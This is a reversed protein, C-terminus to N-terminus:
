LQLFSVMGSFVEAQVSDLGKSYVHDILTNNETTSCTVHQKYENEAMLNNVRSSQKFLNENFDGMVICKTSMKHLEELHKRLNECFQNIDYSPPRYIVSVAVSIPSTILFSVAEIDNNCINLRSSSTNKAYVAVGGHAQHKIKSSLDNTNSYSDYRAQHYLKYPEIRVDFFDDDKKLWTETLCIINSNMFLDNCYAQGHTFTDKLCVVAKDMTMGQVKHVTCAYALKLPFQKRSYKKGMSEKFMEIAQIGIDNNDFKVKISVPETNHDPKVIEDVHGMCGNTLGKKVDVNKILMVRANIAIWLYNLLSTQRSNRPKDCNKSQKKSNVVSDEAKICVIDTCTKHLMKKNWEDVQKNRPYIHVADECEEGTERSKLVLLDNDSLCDHKEKTRLKNLLLAFQKDEKQRMIQDLQVQKFNDIWLSSELTDKYLSSGMVPPLQYFDGVSIVSINGFPSDNRVQKIQRLRGHIYWLLRQNVMSIEDIIVIQLQGLKNRLASIKEEGLPQYPLSINIPISLASHITQGKINYAAIGTPALKLISLDDPNEMIKGLIRTAENYICNVLHSKGTGAGGTIFTYFAEPKKGNAKDLCWQRTKSTHNKQIGFDPIFFEDEEDDVEVNPKPNDLREKESEPCLLSWADEQPGFKSLCEQAEEVDDASKEYQEMNGHVISKVTQLQCGCLKVCGKEHFQEYTEFNPPKLQEDKRFPLFLQLISLFYKEPATDMPFRPYRVIANSTRTRKQIFGLDDDEKNKIVSLPLSMRVPNPGVPIFEVKRSCEKLRLSCVRYISEQASVERNNMYVNGLKRLSQRADENGEKVESAAHNLLLGMERESKSMYGIVYIICAYVNTIYQIDMNANWARLLSPNYQNVWVDQPNRKIVIKEETAVCNNAKEFASQTIGLNQFLEIANKYTEENTVADKVSTLLEMAQKNEDNDDNDKDVITPRMVFTNGSPQRPFNFRCNTGKKKCSKSHRKSHIQVSKVIENLERDVTECPVACSIYKDVFNIVENDKDTGFIPANEVWVLMHVHPSGRMQFEIRYFYDVVKGIPQAESLIVNKLFTHFRKDFMRAVTVPNSKLLNCKDAWELEEINRQDGSQSLLTTMIEKWRFDASSFSLFFTPKGIQRVMAIIDKQTAQWYPPTGRIQKLFKYGRNDTHMLRNHFYRGLTIKVDRTDHFTPQGTPFLVPFSKAENSKNSLLAIPSNNECPACCIIDNFYEDVLNQRRDVPQLSTDFTVGCLRDEIEEEKEEEENNENENTTEREINDESLYNHWEENIAIDFYCKNHDQLYRLAQIVNATNVFKYKYYGKYSLKRKLKVSILQDDVQPRPLMKVTEITNSPVCVVPGHIGNQGSNEKKKKERNKMNKKMINKRFEEDGHYKEAFRQKCREKISQRFKLNGRYKEALKQKCNQRFELNSRYKDALKQKCNQRFKLNGRYKEALKQKCNQRFELNSRYKDALKQKCNQRFKFNRRYKDALKQKCNQRFKLNSRYKDALKQKCNQRFKLNSRYKDALKQKCNQRFKLNSRYKEALKQTVNKRFKSNNRYKAALKQKLNQIKHQRERNQKRKQFKYDDDAYRIQQAEKVKRKKEERYAPDSQYKNRNENKEISNDKEERRRKMRQRNKEKQKRNEYSIKRKRRLTKVENGSCPGEVTKSKKHKPEKDEFTHCEKRMQKRKQTTYNKQSTVDMDLQGTTEQFNNQSVNVSEVVNFHVNMTYLIYIGNDTTVDDIRGPKKASFLQWTLFHDNFSYIDTNLLNAMASIETNSAWTGNDMVRKKLVYEKVSRYEHSFTNIFLDGTELLHNTIARRLLFHNDETGSIIYSIARYFCNGDGTINTIQLPHGIQSARNIGCNMDTHECHIGVENCMNKKQAESIPIFKFNKDPREGYQVNVIEIDSDSQWGNSSSVHGEKNHKKGKVNSDINKDPLRTSCKYQYSTSPEDVDVNGLNRQECNDDLVSASCLMMSKNEINVGTLEFETEHLNCNMSRALRICYDYVGQWFPSYLLISKGHESVCGFRDRAHPDFILFGNVRKIISFTSRNFNMFFADHQHLEQELAQNLSLAGYEAMFELNGDIIGFVSEKPSIVFTNDLIDLEKPLESIMLLDEHMTSDKQIYRYLENGLNLITDLDKTYFENGNRKTSYLIAVLSNAVCQKGSAFGFRYNGQNFNGQAVTINENFTTMIEKMVMISKQLDKSVSVNVSEVVNFHVNMTYLIYIGNDTTVDDIRGPKKASFLQWTLLQDNFSYIDTNLLNAMASIETNSAWTGNDMVRKKLVYEKVSRYEHSFTNIFLDDTELLHNTIARRLLFHNDETGSIIYSIARYFCNGDGTINTIQLPHGIQSARNIGSNRDTHECHIGVENCMNKKQAESIPIFKFNKDPREGYQVNVIEIDSDSQWGNSSSVHGEKNHKQGKVKSDINKDPLRTSCKYQYSTSPEDVDVNGLNRQECNDDLVSASCLMMSKNEINVGTLEFETEHLNCNMSRALRICYDYVGQWSPSYLLISKGHESVCGFRDRAHPDFIHFGNVRKIISFTSRNFNMFFADHQHLEQELAQNLSLAGYEAMFELNGDIIGFVSEKPSIVFTNDLIDLEKPLESIMLLDEHMTSDKQIYRYLENGLTLITDLDKTYFENGNRKTSYLIAVLSNAVCQKGSAFGFRYNGQNFNGQAVTINENSNYVQLENISQTKQRKRTNKQKPVDDIILEESFNNKTLVEIDVDITHQDCKPKTHSRIKETVAKKCGDDIILVENEEFECSACTQNKHDTGNSDIIRSRDNMKSNNQAKADDTATNDNEVTPRCEMKFDEDTKTESNDNNGMNKIDKMTDCDNKLNVNGQAKKNDIKKTKVFRGKNNRLRKSGGGSQQQIGNTVKTNKLVNCMPRGSDDIITQSNGLVNTKANEKNYERYTNTNMNWEMKNNNRREYFDKVSKGIYKVGPEISIGNIVRKRRKKNGRNKCRKKRNDTRKKSKVRIWDSGLLDESGTQQCKKLKANNRKEKNKTLDATVSEDPELITYRNFHCPIGIEGLINDVFNSYGCMSCIWIVRSDCLKDEFVDRVCKVHFYQSCCDCTICNDDAKVEISCLDCTDDFESAVETGYSLINIIDDIIEKFETTDKIVECDVNCTDDNELKITSRDKVNKSLCCQDLLDLIEDIVTEFETTDIIGSDVNGATNVNNYGKNTNEKNNRKRLAPDRESIRTEESVWRILEEFSINHTM